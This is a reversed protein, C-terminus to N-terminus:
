IKRELMIVKGIITIKNLIIEEHDYLIFFGAKYNYKMIRYKSDIIFLGIDNLKIKSNLEIILLDNQKISDKIFYNNNIRFACYKKRKNLIINTYENKRNIIRIKKLDNNQIFLTNDIVLKRNDDYRLYNQKILSKIYQTISNVSKFGLKMQLYRRTPMIHNISNYDIIEKLILEEKDNM